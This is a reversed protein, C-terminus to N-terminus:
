FKDVVEEVNFEWGWLGLFTRFNKYLRRPNQICIRVVWKAPVIGCTLLGICARMQVADMKYAAAQVLVLIIVEGGFCM